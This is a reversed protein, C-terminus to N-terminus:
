GRRTVTDATLPRRRASHYCRRCNRARKNGSGRSKRSGAVKEVRRGKSGEVRLSKDFGHNVQIEGVFLLKQFLRDALPACAFDGRADFLEIALVAEIGCGAASPRARGAPRRREEVTRRRPCPSCQGRVPSRPARIRQCTAGRSGRQGRQGSNARAAPTPCRPDSAASGRAVPAPCSSRSRRDSRARRRCRRARSESRRPSLM